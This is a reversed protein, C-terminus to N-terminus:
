GAKETTVKEGAKIRDAKRVANELETMTLGMCYDFGEKDFDEFEAELIYDSASRMANRLLTEIDRCQELEEELERARKAHKSVQEQTAELETM